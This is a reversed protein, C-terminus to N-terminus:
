DEGLIVEAHRLLSTYFGDPGTLLIRAESANYCMCILDHKTLDQQSFQGKLLAKRKMTFPVFKMSPTPSSSRELLLRQFSGAVRDPTDFQRGIVAVLKQDPFDRDYNITPSMSAPNYFSSSTESSSREHVSGSSSTSGRKQLVVSPSSVGEAGGDPAEEEVDSVPVTAGGGVEAEYLSPESNDKLPSPSPPPSEPEARQPSSESEEPRKVKEEYEEHMLDLGIADM